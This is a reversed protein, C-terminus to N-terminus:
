RRAAAAHGDPDPVAAALRLVAAPVDRRQQTGRRRATKDIRLTAVKARVGTYDYTAEDVTLEEYDACDIIGATGLTGFALRLVDGAQGGGLVNM